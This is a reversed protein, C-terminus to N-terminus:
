GTKGLHHVAPDFGEMWFDVAADQRQSIVRFMDRFHFLMADHGDIQHDHIEIREFGGHRAASAKFFDDLVDVDAAGAHHAGRCFIVLMDAHDDVGFIVICNNRFQCAVVARERGVGVKTQEAFRKLM